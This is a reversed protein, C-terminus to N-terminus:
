EKKKREKDKKDDYGPKYLHLIVWVDEGANNVEQIYDKGSIERVEGYKSKDAMARMEAIRRRRYKQLIWEDEEDELEDLEDLNKAGLDNSAIVCYSILYFLYRIFLFKFFLTLYFELNGRGTKEDITNELLNVIQEETIEQEKKKEPIIGKRRLIDNWETDENPDQQFQFFL